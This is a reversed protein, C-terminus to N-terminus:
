SVQIFELYSFKSLIRINIVHPKRCTLLSFLINWNNFYESTLVQGFACACSQPKLMAGLKMEWSCIHKPTYLYSIHPITQRNASASYNLWSLITIRLIKWFVVKWNALSNQVQLMVSGLRSVCHDLCKSIQLIFRTWVELPRIIQIHM